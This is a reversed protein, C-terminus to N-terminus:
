INKFYEPLIDFDTDSIDQSSDIGSIEVGM